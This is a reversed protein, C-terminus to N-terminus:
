MYSRYCLNAASLCHLSGSGLREFQKMCLFRQVPRALSFAWPFAFPHFFSVSLPRFACLALSRQQHLTAQINVLRGRRKMATGFAIASLATDVMINVGGFMVAGPLAYVDDQTISM